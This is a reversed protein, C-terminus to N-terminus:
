KLVDVHMRRETNSPLWEVQTHGSSKFPTGDVFFNPTQFSTSPHAGEPYLLSSIIWSLFLVAPNLAENACM